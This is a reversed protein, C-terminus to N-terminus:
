LFTTVVPNRTVLCYATRVSGDITISECRAFIVENMFPEIITPDAKNLLAVYEYQNVEYLTHRLANAFNSIRVAIHTVPDEDDHVSQIYYSYLAPYKKLLGEIPIAPPTPPKM